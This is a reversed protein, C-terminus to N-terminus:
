VIYPFFFFLAHVLIHGLPNLAYFYTGAWVPGIFKLPILHEAELAAPKPPFPSRTLFSDAKPAEAEDGYYLFCHEFRCGDKTELWKRLDKPGHFTDTRPWDSHGKSYFVSAPFKATALTKEMDHNWSHRDHVVLTVGLLFGLVGVTFFLFLIGSNVKTLPSAPNKWAFLVKIWTM